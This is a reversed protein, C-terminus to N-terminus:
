VVYVDGSEPLGAAEYSFDGTVLETVEDGDYAVLLAGVFREGDFVPSGAIGVAIGPWPDYFGLDSAVAGRDPDDRMAVFTDSLVSGSFPGTELNTGIDPRKAVTYVVTGDADVLYLDLLELRNGLGRVVNRYVPHVRRHVETWTSGDDADDVVEPRTIPGLDIAYEYQLYASAASRGILDRLQADRGAEQLPELYRTRYEALLEDLEEDLDDIATSAELEDLAADYAEIAAPAQLSAALADTTRTLGRIGAGVDFAASEVTARLREENLDDSLDEGTTVGVVTAVALSVVAVAVVSAALRTAVSTRAIERASSGSGETVASVTCLTHPGVGRTHLHTRDTSEGPVSLAKM